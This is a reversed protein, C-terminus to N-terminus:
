CPLPTAKRVAQREMLCSRDYCHTHVAESEALHVFKQKLIKKSFIPPFISVNFSFVSKLLAFRHFSAFVNVTSCSLLARAIPSAFNQSLVDRKVLTQLIYKTPIFKKPFYRVLTTKLDDLAMM